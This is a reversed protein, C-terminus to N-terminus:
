YILACLISNEEVFQKRRATWAWKDRDSLRPQSLNTQKEGFAILASLSGM